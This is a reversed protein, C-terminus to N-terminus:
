FPIRAGDWAFCHGTDRPGLRDIVDLLCRASQAPSFLKDPAVGRQFPASLPTDVTGPHLTVALAQPHTRALEIAAGRVLMNLAAKAARYSHWGGLRNDSISGVRASVAAFVARSDRRLLPLFHKAILAPGIANIAYSKAMAAPDLSRLAKEPATGDDLMLAGSAVLVMDLPGDARIISAAHAISAEDLLDVPLVQRVTHRVRAPNRATAYLGDGGHRDLLEQLLAGGIGGSAGIIAARQTMAEINCRFRAHRWLGKPGHGFHPSCPRRRSSYVLQSGFRRM